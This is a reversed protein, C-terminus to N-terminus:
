GIRLALTGLRQSLTSSLGRFLGFTVAALLDHRDLDRAPVLELRDLAGKEVHHLGLELDGLRDRGKTVDQELYGAEVLCFLVLDRREDGTGLPEHCALRRFGGVLEKLGIKIGPGAVIWVHVHLPILEDVPQPCGPQGFVHEALKCLRETDPLGFPAHYVVRPLESGM